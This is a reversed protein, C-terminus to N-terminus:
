HRELRASRVPVAKHDEMSWRFLMGPILFVFWCITTVALLAHFVVFLAFTFLTGAILNLKKSM